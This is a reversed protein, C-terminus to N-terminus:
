AAAETEAAVLPRAEDAVEGVIRPDLIMRRGSSSL